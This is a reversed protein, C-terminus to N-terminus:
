ANRPASPISGPCHQEVLQSAYKEESQPLGLALALESAARWHECAKDLYRPPQDGTCRDVEMAYEGWNTYARVLLLSPATKKLIAIEEDALDLAKRYENLAEQADNKLTDGRVWHIYSAHELVRARYSDRAETDEAKDLVQLAMQYAKEASSWEKLLAHALCREKLITAWLIRDKGYSKAHSGAALLLKEGEKLLTKRLKEDSSDQLSEARAVLINGRGLAIKANFKRDEPETDESDILEGAAVEAEQYSSAADVMEDLNGYLGARYVLLRARQRTSLQSASSTLASTIREILSRQETEAYVFGSVLELLKLFEDASCDEGVALGQWRVLQLAYRRKEEPTSATRLIQYLATITARRLEDIFGREAKPLGTRDVQGAFFDRLTAHCFRYQAQQDEGSASIFSCWNEKLRRQAQPTKESLGAWACLQRATAPESAALTALLPLSLGYWQAEDSKREQWWYKAYYRVLGSPLNRLQSLKRSGSEIERIVYHLYIWVGRCKDMLIDILYQRPYGGRQLAEAIGPWEAAQELFRRMDTQNDAQEASLQILRLLDVDLVVSSPRQSAIIFVGEPLTHPLSLPNENDPAGAQDLADIVLVVREGPQRLRAAQRLLEYFVDPRGAAPPLIGVTAWPAIRHKLVLQASLSKLGEGIKALGAADECFLRPYDQSQALWAMFATKGLGAEAELILYGCMEDRLFDAVQALLWERGVFRDLRLGDLVSTSAIYNDQLREEQPLKQETKIYTVSVPGEFSGTMVPGNVDGAVTTQSGHVVQGQQSTKDQSEPPVQENM